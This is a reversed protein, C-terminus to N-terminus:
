TLHDEIYARVIDEFRADAGIGNRTARESVFAEPWGEVVAQLAADPEVRVEGLRRGGACRRLADIMEGISATLSPLNMARSAGFAAAPLDHVALLADAVRRASAVPIRTRPELPCIVDRGHLPERVIAAIRDSVAPVPAGPRVLVVPLRLARGDVFGRRAYDTILLEAIAKHTGYSTQPTRAVADDVIRPLEGGFAAISSPFVLKPPRAQARCAELLRMLAHVNVELGRVFETEAQMTLTAALHFVSDVGGDLLRQLFDPDRFDGTEIRVAIAGGAGAGRAGGGGGAAVAVPHGAAPAAADALILEGIPRAEGAADVLRARAELARVVHAGVFGGAGTVLVRM